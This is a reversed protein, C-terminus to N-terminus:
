FHRPILYTIFPFSSGYYASLKFLKPLTNCAIFFYSYAMFMYM